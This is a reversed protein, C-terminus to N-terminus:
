FLNLYTFFRAYGFDDEHSMYSASYVHILSGVGTVVLALTASLRDALFGWSVDVLARGDPGAVRFWTGGRFHLTEGQLTWAFAVVSLLFSGVLAAIAIFAVNARGLKRGVLGNVTAGLLPLAVILWLYSQAAALAGMSPMMITPSVIVKGGSGLCCRQVGRAPDRGPSHNRAIGLSMVGSLAASSATSRSTSTRLIGLASRSKCAASAAPSTARRPWARTIPATRAARSSRRTRTSAPAAQGGGGSISAASRARRRSLALPENRRTTFAVPTTTCVFRPRAGSDSSASAAM